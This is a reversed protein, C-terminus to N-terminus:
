SVFGWRWLLHFFYLTKGRVGIGRILGKWLLIAFHLDDVLEPSLALVSALELWHSAPKILRRVGSVYYLLLLGVVLQKESM